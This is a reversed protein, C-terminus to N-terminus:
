RLAIIRKKNYNTLNLLWYSISYTGDKNITLTYDVFATKYNKTEDQANREVYEIFLQYHCQFSM